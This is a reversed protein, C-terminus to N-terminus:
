RRWTRISRLKPSRIWNARRKTWCSRDGAQSRSRPCDGATAAPRRVAVRRRRHRDHRLGDAHVGIDEHICALEATKIVDSMPVSPDNLTINGRITSGFLYSRQTVVGFQRRVSQLDLGAIDAGDYRICGSSPKYLGLMLKALTSKGVGSQGVIAVMQGPKVNISVDQIGAGAMPGYRFSVKDLEIAGSLRECKRVASKDQESSAKFCMTSGNSTAECIASAAARELDVDLGSRSSRRRHCEARADHGPESQREAGPTRRVVFGAVAIGHALHEDVLRRNRKVTRADALCEVRRCVSEVM